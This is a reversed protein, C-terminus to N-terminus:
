RGAGAADARTHHRVKHHPKRVCKGRKSIRGRKCIPPTTGKGSEPASATTFDLDPGDSTGVGNAAVIRYHYTTSPTLSSITSSANHLLNDPELAASTGTSHGYLASTGYEFHYTTPSFGPKIQAGLTAATQSIASAATASITPTDTTNFTRDPGSSVAPSISRSPGTTTPKERSFARSRRPPLTISIQGHRNIRDASNKIRILCSTGYEFRVVTPAFDPNM